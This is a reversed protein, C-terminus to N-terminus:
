GAARNQQAHGAANGRVLRHLKGAEQRLRAGPHRHDHSGGSLLKDPRERKFRNRPARYEGTHKSAARDLGPVNAEGFLGVNQNNGRGCGVAHGLKRQPQCVVSSIPSTKKEAKGASGLSSCGNHFAESAEKMRLPASLGGGPRYGINRGAARGLTASRRLQIAHSHRVRRNIGVIRARGSPPHARGM